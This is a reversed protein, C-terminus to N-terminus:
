DIKYESICFIVKRVLKDLKITLERLSSEAAYTQDMNSGHLFKSRVDYMNRILKENYIKEENTGGLLDVTRMNIQSGVKTKERVFLAELFSSYFIIKIIPHSHLRVLVIFNLARDIHELDYYVEGNYSSITNNEIGSILKLYLSLENPVKFKNLKKTIFENYYNISKNFEEKSFEIKNTIGDAKSIWARRFNTVTKRHQVDYFYSSDLNVSNDKVLWLSLLWSFINRSEVELMAEQENITLARQTKFSYILYPNDLLIEARMFGIALVFTSYVPDEYNFDTYKSLSEIGYSLDYNQFVNMNIVDESFNLGRLGHIITYEM